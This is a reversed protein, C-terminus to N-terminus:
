SINDLRYICIFSHTSYHIRLDGSTIDEEQTPRLSGNQAQSDLQEQKLNQSAEPEAEPQQELTQDSSQIQEMPDNGSELSIIQPPSKEKPEESYEQIDKTKNPSDHVQPPSPSQIKDAPEDPIVICEQVVSSNDLAEYSKQSCEQIDSDNDYLENNPPLDVLNGAPNDHKQSSDQSDQTPDDERFHSLQQSCEQIELQNDDFSHIHSPEANDAPCDASNEGPSYDNDEATNKSEAELQSSCEQPDLPNGTLELMQSITPSNTQLILPENEAQVNDRNEATNNPETELQQSCEQSGLPNDALELVPSTGPSDASKNEPSPDSNGEHIQQSCEQIGSSSDTLEKSSDGHVYNDTQSRQPSGDMVNASDMEEADLTVTIFQQHLCVISIKGSHEAPEDRYEPPTEARLFPHFSTAEELGEESNWSSSKHSFDYVIPNSRGEAQKDMYVTYHSIESM